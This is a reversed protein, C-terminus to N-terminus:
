FAKSIEKAAKYALVVAKEIHEKEVLLSGELDALSRAVALVEKTRELGEVLPIYSLVRAEESMMEKLTFLDLQANPRFQKRTKQTEYALRKRKNLVELEVEPHPYLEFFNKSPTLVIQFLSFDDASLKELVSRCRYLSRGCGRGKGFKARGCPCLSSRAILMVRAREEGEGKTKLSIAERVQKSVESFCDLYALGGHAYHYLGKGSTGLIQGKTVTSNIQVFPREGDVFSVGETQSADLKNLSERIVTLFERLEPSQPMFFLCSHEGHVLVEFVEVWVPSINEARKTYTLFANEPKLFKNPIVRLNDLNSFKILNM